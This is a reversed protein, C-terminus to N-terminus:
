KANIAEVLNLRSAKWAPVSASIINLIFCLVLASLLIDGDLLIGLAPRVPENGASMYLGDYFLAFLIGACLGIVGGAVTVIFNEAIIDGVIRRRTCGFARRVGLEHVRRRLRSHLMTSLNIAPVVLLIVYIIVRTRRGSNIEPTVNSGFAFDGSAITEQSFPAEHYVTRMGTPALETDMESYRKKVQARIYDPEVGKRVLLAAMFPGFNGRWRNDLDVPAYVDGFAMSALASVDEVIGIVEYRSYDLDFHQGIVDESDFLRRAASRSVLAVKSKATVEEPTFYRGKLLEYDFVRFMADDGYRVGVTFRRNNTGKLDLRALESYMFATEEVGDLGGYLKLATEYSMSASSEHPAAPDTSEEHYYVGYLMRDRHTEPAIPATKVHQMMMITMILFISMATGIVTVFAVVPQTRMEYIIRNLKGKM